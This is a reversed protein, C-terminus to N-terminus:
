VTCRFHAAPPLFSFAARVPLKKKEYEILSKRDKFGRLTRPATPKTFKGTQNEVNKRYLPLSAIPRYSLEPSKGGQPKYPPFLLPYVGERKRNTPPKRLLTNRGGPIFRKDSFCCVTKRRGTKSDECSFGVMGFMNKNRSFSYRQLIYRQFGGFPLPTM